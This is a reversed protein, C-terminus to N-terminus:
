VFYDACAILDERYLIFVGEGGREFDIWNFPVRPFEAELAYRSNGVEVCLCGRETLLAAADRLLRRTFNLGDVGSTLAM